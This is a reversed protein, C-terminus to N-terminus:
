GRSASATDALRPEQQLDLVPAVNTAPAPKVTIGASLRQVGQTVVKEGGQLGSGILWQNGVTRVTEIALQRATNQEDVVWVSAQGSADRQVAQQPVLIANDQRGQVLEARVFMGPLLIGDPNPFEARLTVSGTTQDVTVESFRLAGEQSYVEGDDLKLRVRAQDDGAQALQGSQLARRLKLLESVPQTVDVYIPDLQQVTAMPESQGSTVLAGETVSSRGIRGEIPSLVKSYEVNIRALDVSAQAQKLAGQSEEVQQKSIASTKQLQLNRRALPAAVDLDARARKYEAQYVADDIQYLQQGKQVQAGENFMRKLIVGSVQPRIEAVRYATTRGPLSRTVELKQPTITYIGVEPEASQPAAAPESCASLVFATAVLAVASVM